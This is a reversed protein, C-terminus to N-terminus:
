TFEYILFISRRTVLWALTVVCRSAREREEGCRRCNCPREGGGGHRGQRQQEAGAAAAEGPRPVCAPPPEWWEPVAVRRAAIKHTVVQLYDLIGEKACYADHLRRAAAAMARCEADHERCWQIKEDLDSMDAKVPVHDVYPRLLPFYWMRDAVCRSEVQPTPPSHALSSLSLPSLSFPGPLVGLGFLFPCTYTFLYSALHISLLKFFFCPLRGRESAKLIVSGLRMLFSYRCAACHGEVYLLYKYRAQEYIPVFNGRGVQNKPKRKRTHPTPPPTLNKNVAGPPRLNPPHTTQHPRHHHSITYFASPRVSM